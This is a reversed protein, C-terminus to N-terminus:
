LDNYPTCNRYKVLYTYQTLSVKLQFYQKIVPYIFNFPELLTGAITVMTGTNLLETNWYDDDYWGHLRRPTNM